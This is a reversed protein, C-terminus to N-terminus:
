NGLCAPEGSLFFSLFFPDPTKESHHLRFLSGVGKETRKEEEIVTVSYGGALVGRAPSLGTVAPQPPVLYAFQGGPSPPSSGGPGSVWVPVVGGSHAYYQRSEQLAPTGLKGQEITTDEYYGAVGGPTTETATTTTCYDTLEILGTTNNLYAYDGVHSQDLLDAANPNYGSVAPLHFPTLVRKPPL